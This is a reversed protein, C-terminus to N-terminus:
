LKSMVIGYTPRHRPEPFGGRAPVSAGYRLPVVPTQTAQEPRKLIWFPVIASCSVARSPSRSDTPSASPHGSCSPDRVLCGPAQAEVALAPDSEPAPAEAPGAVVLCEATVPDASVARGAVGQVQVELDAKEHRALSRCRRGPDRASM